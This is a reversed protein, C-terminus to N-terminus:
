CNAANPAPSAFLSASCMGPGCCQGFLGPIQPLRALYQAARRPSHRSCANCPFTSADTSIDVPFICPRGSGGVICSSAHRDGNRLANLSNPTPHKLTTSSFTGFPEFATPDRHTCVYLPLPCPFQKLVFDLTTAFSLTGRTWM